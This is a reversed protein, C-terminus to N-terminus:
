EYNVGRIAKGKKCIIIKRDTERYEKKLLDKLLEVSNNTDSLHCLYVISPGKNDGLKNLFNVADINSLHGKESLIREKLYYPYPGKKLMEEDYNAELFLIDSQMVYKEAEDPIRGTDTLLTFCTSGVKFYFGISNEADHLTSFSTFTLVDFSYEQGPSIDLRSYPNIKTIEKKPIAEHMVLPIKYKKSLRGAGRYHDVHIHTLLIFRLKNLDFDFDAARKLLEKLSFGNDIMFSFDGQEFIYANASSGSGLVAYRIKDM